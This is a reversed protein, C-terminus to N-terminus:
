QLRSLYKAILQNEYDIVAAIVEEDDDAKSLLDHALTKAIAPSSILKPQEIETAIKQDLKRKKKHAKKNTFEFKPSWAERNANGGGGGGSNSGGVAPASGLSIVIDVNSGPAVQAGGIPNQSIVLGIAVASYASTVGVTLGVAQIDTTAQAQTEGVVNPVTVAATTAWFGTAWFSDAWLNNAFVTRGTDAV